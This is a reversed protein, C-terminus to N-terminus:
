AKKLYPQALRLCVPTLIAWGIALVPYATPELTIAGLRAGAWFALPGGVLGFGVAVAWHRRLFNLSHNLTTAFVAWLAIFWFSTGHAYLTGSTFSVLGLAAFATEWLTGLVTVLALLKAEHPYRWLHAVVVALAAIVGYLPMMAAASLVLALWAAQFAILNRVTPWM